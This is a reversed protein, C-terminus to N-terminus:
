YGALGVLVLGQVVLLDWNQNSNETQEEFLLGQAVFVEAGEKEQLEGVAVGLVREAEAEVVFLVVLLRSRQDLLFGQWLGFYRHCRLCSVFRLLLKGQWCAVLWYAGAWCAFLWYGLYCLGFTWL